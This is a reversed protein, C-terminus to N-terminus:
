GDTGTKADDSQNGLDIAPKIAATNLKELQVIANAVAVDVDKQPLDSRNSAFWDKLLKAQAQGDESIEVAVKVKAPQGDQRKDTIKRCAGLYDAAKPADAKIAKLAKSVDGGNDDVIKHVRADKVVRNFKNATDKHM